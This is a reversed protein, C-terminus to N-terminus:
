QFSSLDNILIHMNASRYKFATHNEDAKQVIAVHPKNKEARLDKM